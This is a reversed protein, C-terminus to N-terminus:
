KDKGSKVLIRSFLTKGKVSRPTREARAKPPSVSGTARDAEEKALRLERLRETKVARAKAESIYQATAQKRDAVKKQNEAFRAEARQMITQKIESM